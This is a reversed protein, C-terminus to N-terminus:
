MKLYKDKILFYHHMEHGAIHYALARVTANNFTGTGHGLRDFAEEPLGNFLAITAHRVAEYEDFINDLLRTDAGSYKAYSDQDFGVLNQQENRAFRLARYAFIREDDIIHVLTEKISWKGPAYRYLLHQPPLSYILDKVRYFNNQLYKLVMGDTPILKMYMEAYPPYDGPKPPQIIRM